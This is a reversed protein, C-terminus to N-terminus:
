VYLTYNLLSLLSLTLCVYSWLFSAVQIGASHCILCDINRVDIARFLDRLVQSREPSSHWFALTQRTISFDPLNPVILRVHPRNRSYYDILKSFHQHNGPIGHLAVVTTTCDGRNVDVYELDIDLGSTPSNDYLYPNQTKLFEYLQGCTRIRIHKIYKAYSSNRRVIQTHLATICLNINRYLM